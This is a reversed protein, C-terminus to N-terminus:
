IKGQDYANKISQEITLERDTRYLLGKEELGDTSKRRSGSFFDQDVTMIKEITVRVAQKKQGKLGKTVNVKIYYREGPTYEIKKHPPQWMQDPKIVDTELEGTDANNLRIPYRSFAKQLARWIEDYSAEFVKTVPELQEATESDQDSTACGGLALCFSFITLTALSTLSKM